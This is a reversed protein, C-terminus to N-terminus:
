RLKTARDYRHVAAEAIAQDMEELTLPKSRRGKFRGAMSTLDGKVVVLRFGKWAPVFQIKDGPSLGLAERVAKPVTIQSKSTLTAEEM